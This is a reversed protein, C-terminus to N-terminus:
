FYRPSKVRWSPNKQSLEFRLMVEHTGGFYPRIDSIYHDYAYGIMLGKAVQFGAMAALAGTNDNYRYSGGIEFKDYLFVNANFDISIPAGNTAKVLFSPKLKVVDSLGFVYGGTLYYSIRESALFNIGSSDDNDLNYDNNILRPASLGLYWVDKHLFVGAGVNPNWKDTYNGFFPDNLVDPNMLFVEDLNYHTFGGKLGFALETENGVDITYSFDAYAYLFNEFGPSDNIVSLGIGIKDNTLPSHVSITQTTPGGNIETWQSRHLGVVSLTERSGAYAPNVSITNYMYQSFQPLQQAFGISSILVIVLAGIKNKIISM